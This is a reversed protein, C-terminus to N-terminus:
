ALFTFMVPLVLASVASESLGAAFSIIADKTPAPTPAITNSTGNGNTGNGSKNTGNGSGSAPTPAATPAITPSTGSSGSSTIVPDYWAKTTFKPFRFTITTSKGTMSVKPYGTPMSTWNGDIQVRSSLGLSLGGGLEISTNKGGKSKADGKGSVTIDLDVMAGTENNGAKQCGCWNWAELVINWKLDGKSVNWTDNASGVTGSGEMMFTEITINGLSDKLATKFVVKTAKATGVSINSEAPHIDFNQTAFSNFSHKSAGSTGVATGNEDLERLADITIKTGNSISEKADYLTFKGSQGQISLNMQADGLRSSGAFLLGVIAKTFM